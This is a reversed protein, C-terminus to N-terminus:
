VHADAQLKRLSSQDHIWVGLGHPFSKKGVIVFVIGLLEQAAARAYDAALLEDEMSPVPIPEPHTHWLGVCHLGEKFLKVREDFAHSPNFRVGCRSASVPPLLTAVEVSVDDATLNRAYLQGVSEKRGWGKQVRSEFLRLVEPGFTLRGAGALLRFNHVQNM